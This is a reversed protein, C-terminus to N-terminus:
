PLGSDARTSVWSGKVLLLGIAKALRSRLAMARWNEVDIKRYATTHAHAFRQLSRAFKICVSAVRWNVQNTM